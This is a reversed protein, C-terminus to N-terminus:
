RKVKETSIRFSVQNRHQRSGQPDPDRLQLRVGGQQIHWDGKSFLIKNHMIFM